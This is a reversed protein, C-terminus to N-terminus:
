FNYQLGLVFSTGVAGIGHLSPNYAAGTQNSTNSLGTGAYSGMDTPPKQNFLNNVSFQVMTQKNFQYQLNLNWFWFADVKCYQQPYVDTNAFRQGNSANIGDDCTFVGASPDTLDYSGVYNGIITGTFGGKSWQGTLQLRDQPNGTNGSIIEPGHTGALKYKQGNLTIDYTFIHSWQVGLKMRSEDPLKFSYVTGFDLGTTTTKQANVYPTNIYQIPGVSSLGTSGDGFTVQQPTGRVAFELPDFGDVSAATIIQDKLQIYYYDATISWNQIPELIFGVTWNDSKEPKLDSSTSQFYTPSFNCFAPVNQPSTQNPTGNPNSVPCLEPDRIANFGFLSGADGNETMYPARFGQGWTGRLALEKMPTWKAGVKPTWQGGYTDYYDYRVAASLELTKLVPANLEAYFSTDSQDGVAYACNIGAVSGDQCESPNGGSLKQYVYSAGLALGLPGGELKMLDRTATFQFFDLESKITNKVTPSVRSMVDSSNGGNLNFPNVPDNLAVLLATNNPYGNRTITSEVQTYGAAFNMDWGWASGSLEGVIRTSGAEFDTQRTLRDPLIARVNAPAGFTNGPYNTPVTYTAIANVISPGQGPGYATNGVFSGAPVTSQRVVNESRSNFYSATLNAQWGESLKANFSGLVNVNQTEPQIQSWTDEYLCQNSRLRTFDCNSNLFAYNTASSTSAGRRQLYPTQVFPSTIGNLPAYAGPRLDGGGVGTWDFNIWDGKGLRDQMTIQDQHRYEVTLFGNYPGDGGFGQTLAAYVSTGDGKYSTGAQAFVQTGTFNKKLIVNVVGGIADSGYIASAGDLLVEIREVASFPINSIDVFGRQNDDSLPYPAMRLGDILVLTAGVTLGRLAVGSAGGAFARSFGQSLLGQGNATIERLVENITTYGSRVLDESTLVQVPSATEADVRRINSGTVEVRIPPQGPPPATVSGSPTQASAPVTVLASLAGGAFACALAIAVKKRQFAM